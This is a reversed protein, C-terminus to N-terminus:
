SISFKELEFDQDNINLVWGHNGWDGLVIRKSSGANHINPRHTHGHIFLDPEHQNM